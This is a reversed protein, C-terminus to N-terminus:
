LRGTSFPNPSKRILIALLEVAIIFLTPSCCCGQRIERQPHFYDSSLGNNVTCTKIDNFLIKVASTIYDGVGFLEMAHFILDWRVTGFAKRYDVALLLGNSNSANTQDIAMQINTLNMGITRGKVFGTQDDSIVEKICSQLRNALAKSFIKFDSNLLTIPRWNDLSTRDQSNKLYWRSSAQVSDKLCPAKNSPFCSANMSRTKCFTGSPSM